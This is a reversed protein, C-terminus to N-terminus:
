SIQFFLTALNTVPFDSVVVTSKLLSLFTTFFYKEFLSFIILKNFYNIINTSSISTIHNFYSEM